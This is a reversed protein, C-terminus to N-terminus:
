EKHTPSSPIVRPKGGDTHGTPNLLILLVGGLTILQKAAEDYRAIAAVASDIRSKSWHEIIAEFSARSVFKDTDTSNPEM